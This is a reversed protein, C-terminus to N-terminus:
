QTSGETQIKKEGLNELDELRNTDPNIPDQAPHILFQAQKAHLANRLQIAATELIVQPDNSSRIQATIEGTLKERYARNRSEEFLRANELIQSIRSSVDKVLNMEDASLNSDEPWINLSGIVHERIKLPVRIPANSKPEIEAKQHNTSYVPKVNLGDFQYGIAKKSKRHQHWAKNVLEGSITEIEQLQEQLEQLLYTNEIATALQDALIQLVMINDQDFALAETSQVDLAGIIKNGSRLPLAIESRTLPLYPNKFHIANEGVDLAIQPTGTSCVYGVLGTEGIRLKHGSQLMASGTEKTAARLVAYENRSDVMFIGAHYFGFREPILSVTDILLNELNRHTTIDRAVEASVQIQATRRELDRTRQQVKHELSEHSERLWDTMLSFARSLDGIEDNQEFSEIPSLDGSTIRNVNSILSDIPRVIGKLALWSVVSAFVIALISLILWYLRTLQQAQTTKELSSSVEKQISSSLQSIESGLKKELRALQTQRLTLTSGWRGQTVLQNMEQMVGNLEQSINKLNSIYKQNTERTKQDFGISQSSLQSLQKEFVLLNEILAEQHDLARTQILSDVSNIIAFWSFQLKNIQEIQHTGEEIIETSKTTSVTFGTGVGVAAIILAVLTFFALNLRQSVSIRRNM